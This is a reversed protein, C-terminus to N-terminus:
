EGAPVETKVPAVSANVPTVSMPETLSFVLGLDKPLEAQRDQKLWVVTSVGAGVGAGIVAGPVGGIMAGAALGSGATLTLIGADRKKNASRMITGERDVKTNDWRNTDIVRARVMYEAGDPLTITRTELHIAAGGGIRRGGRVWTVRGELVAGAPVIVKGDRMVPDSVEATFKSGMKTSETSLMENLRAKVLTGEPVEGPQSAVSTVVGWNPDNPDGKFGGSGGADKLPRRTEQGATAETVISADPDTVTATASAGTYPVYPGYTEVRAAPVAAPIAAPPKAAVTATSDSDTIVATDPHSVGTRQDQGFGPTVALAVGVCFVGALKVTEVRNAVRMATERLLSESFCEM